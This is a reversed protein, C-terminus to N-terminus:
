LHAGSKIGRSIYSIKQVLSKSFPLRWVWPTYDSTSDVYDMVLKETVEAVTGPAPGLLRDINEEMKAVQVGDPIESSFVDEPDLLFGLNERELFEANREEQPFFPPFYGFPIGRELSEYVTQGGAKGICVDAWDMHAEMNEVYGHVQFKEGLVRSLNERLEVNSGCIIRVEGGFFRQLEQYFDSDEPLLGLGGGTVLVNIGSHLPKESFFSREAVLVKEPAVGMEVMREKTYTVPVIYLDTGENIWVKHPTFDTVVTILPVSIKREKKYESLLYAVFSYTAVFGQPLPRRDLTRFFRQKVPYLFPLVEEKHADGRLYWRYRFGQSRCMNSYQSYIFRSLKPTIMELFDNTHVEFDRRLWKAAREAGKRHGSGFSCTYIQINM